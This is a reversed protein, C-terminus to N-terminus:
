QNKIHTSFIFLCIYLILKFIIYNQEIPAMPSKDEKKLGHFYKMFLKIFTKM